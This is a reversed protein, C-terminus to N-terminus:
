WHQAIINSRPNFSSFEKANLTEMILTACYYQVKSQVLEDNLHEFIEKRSYRLIRIEFLYVSGHLCNHGRNQIFTHYFLQCCFCLVRRWSCMNSRMTLIVRVRLSRNKSISYEKFLMTVEPDECRQVLRDYYISPFPHAQEKLGVFFIDMFFYICM